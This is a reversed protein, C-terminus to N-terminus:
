APKGADAAHDRWAVLVSDIAVYTLLVELVVTKYAAWSPCAILQVGALNEVTATLYAAAMVTYLYLRLLSPKLLRIPHPYKFKDLQWFRLAYTFFRDGYNAFSFSFAVAVLYLAVTSYAQPVLGLRLAGSWVVVPLVLVSILAFAPGFVFRFYGFVLGVLFLPSVAVKIILAFAPTNRLPYLVMSVTFVALSILMILLVVDNLTLTGRLIISRASLISFSGAALGSVVMLLNILLNRQREHLSDM